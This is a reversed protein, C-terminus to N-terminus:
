HEIGYKNRLNQLHYVKVDIDVEVASSVNKIFERVGVEDFSLINDVALALIIRFNKFNNKSIFHSYKKIDSKLAPKNITNKILKVEVGYGKGDKAFIGDFGIDNGISAGRTISCDYENQIERLILEEALLIQEGINPPSIKTADAIVSAGGEILVESKENTIEEVEKKIKQKKEEPTLSRFFGEEDKYDTPAYLKTHHKSVLWLFGIFVIFPFVVLFWVLISKQSESLFESSVNLVVGAIGYVLVIFLAIIGLPNRALKGATESLNDM